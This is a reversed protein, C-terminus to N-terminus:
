GLVLQSTIVLTDDDVYYYEVKSNFEKETYLKSHNKFINNKGWDIEMRGVGLSIMSGM